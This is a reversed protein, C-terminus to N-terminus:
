DREIILMFIMEHCNYTPFPVYEEFLDGPVAKRMVLRWPYKLGFSVVRCLFISSSQLSCPDVSM